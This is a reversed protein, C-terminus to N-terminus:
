VMADSPSPKTVVLIQIGVRMEVFLRRGITSTRSVQEIISILVDAEAVEWDGWRGKGKPQRVLWRHIARSISFADVM